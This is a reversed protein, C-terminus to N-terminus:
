SILSYPQFELFLWWLIMDASNFGFGLSIYKAIFHDALEYVFKFRLHNWLMWLVETVIYVILNHRGMWLMQVLCFECGTSMKWNWTWLTSYTWPAVVFSFIDDWPMAKTWSLMHVWSVDNHSPSGVSPTDAVGRNSSCQSYKM